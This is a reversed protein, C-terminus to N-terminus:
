DAESELWGAWAEVDYCGCKGGSLLPCTPCLGDDITAVLSELCTGNQALTEAVRLVGGFHTEFNTAM